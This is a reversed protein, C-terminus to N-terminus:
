RLMAQVFSVANTGPPGDVRVTVRYYVQANLLVVSPDNITTGPSQKPAQMDCWTSVAPANTPDGLGPSGDPLPIAGPPANPNCMREIVYRITNKSNDQQSRAGSADLAAVSAQTQLPGPIGYQDDWGAATPDHTPYYNLTPQVVQFNPIRPNGSPNADSFLSAAADEVAYNAPLISAQRFALNGIVSTTTDVSRILSIAALSMAVMVILAILLVVGRQRRPTQWTATLRPALFRTVAQEM